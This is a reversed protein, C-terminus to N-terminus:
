RSRSFLLLILHRLLKTMLVAEVLFHGCLTQSVAKGAFMQRITPEGYVIEFSEALGSGKIMRGISGLFSM